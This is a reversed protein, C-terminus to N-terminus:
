ARGKRELRERQRRQQRTENARALEEQTLRHDEEPHNATKVTGLSNLVSAALLMQTTLPRM